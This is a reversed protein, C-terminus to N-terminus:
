GGGISKLVGNLLNVVANLTDDVVPIGLNVAPSAPPTSPASGSPETSGNSASVSGSGSPPAPAPAAVEAAGTATPPVTTPVPVPVPTSPSPAPTPTAAQTGLSPLRGTAADLAALLPQRAVGQDLAVLGWSAGDAHFAFVNVWRERFDGKAGELTIAAGVMTEGAPLSPVLLSADFPQERLGPLIQLMFAEGTEQGAPLQATFGRSRAVLQNGLDVSDGLYRQDWSDSSSFVLPTTRSPLGPAPVTVQRLAPVAQSRAVSEVSASGEYAAVVVALARSVRAAGSVRVLTDGATVEATGTSTTVLVDGAVLEGTTDGTSSARALRVNSDKRLELQRGQGLGLTATGDLILVQEGSRLTRSGTVVKRGGENSTVQAQGMVTLRGAAKASQRSCGAGAWGILLVIALAIWRKM